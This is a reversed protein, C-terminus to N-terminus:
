AQKRKAARKQVAPGIANTAERALRALRLRETKRERVITEEDILTRATRTTADHRTEIATLKPKFIGEPIPHHRM